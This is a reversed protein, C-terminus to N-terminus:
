LKEKIKEVIKQLRQVDEETWGQENVLLEIADLLEEKSIFCTFQANM